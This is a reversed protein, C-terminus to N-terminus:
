SVNRVEIYYNYTNNDIEFIEIIVIPPRKLVIKHWFIIRKLSSKLNFALFGKGLGGLLETLVREEINFSKGMSIKVVGGYHHFATDIALTKGIKSEGIVLISHGNHYELQKVNERLQDITSTRVSQPNLKGLPFFRSHFILKFSRFLGLKKFLTLTILAGGGITLSKLHYLFIM